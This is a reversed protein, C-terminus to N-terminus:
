DSGNSGRYHPNYNHSIHLSFFAVFLKSLLDESGRNVTRSSSGKWGLPKGRILEGNSTTEIYYKLHKQKKPQTALKLNIHHSFETFFRFRRGCGVCDGVFGQFKVTM